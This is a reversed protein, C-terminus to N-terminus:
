VSGGKRADGYARGHCCMASADCLPYVGKKAAHRSGSGYDTGDNKCPADKSSVEVPKIPHDFGRLYRDQMERITAKDPDELGLTMAARKISSQGGHMLSFGQYDKVKEFLVAPTGGNNVAKGQGLESLRRGIAAAELNWDVEEKVRVIEGEKELDAIYERIDRYPFPM